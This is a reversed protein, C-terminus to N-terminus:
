EEGEGTQKPARRESELHASIAELTSAVGFLQIWLGRRSESSDLIPYQDNNGGFLDSLLHLTAVCNNLSDEISSADFGQFLPHWPPAIRTNSAM